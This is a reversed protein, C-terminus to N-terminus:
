IFDSIKHKLELYAIWIVLLIGDLLAAALNINIPVLSLLNIGYDNGFFPYLLYAEEGLLMDLFIHIVSGLALMFAILSMDITHKRIHCIRIKEHLPRIILFLLLFALPFFLSHTFTKNVWWEPQGIIKLFLTALIDIDPMVGGLGAILVYHLPFGSRAKKTIIKDRILSVLLVPILIHTVAQPM